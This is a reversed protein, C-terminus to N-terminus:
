DDFTPVQHGSIDVAGIVYDLSALGIAEIGKMTVHANNMGREQDLGKSAAHVMLGRDILGRITVGTSSAPDYAYHNRFPTGNAKSLGLAHRMIMQEDANLM